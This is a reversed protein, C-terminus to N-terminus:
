ALKRYEPTQAAKKLMLKFCSPCIPVVDSEERMLVEIMTAVRKGCLACDLLSPNFVHLIRLKRRIRAFLNERTGQSDMKRRWGRGGIVRKFNPILM